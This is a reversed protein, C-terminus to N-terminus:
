LMQKLVPMTSLKAVYESLKKRRYTAIEDALTPEPDHPLHKIKIKVPDNKVVFNLRRLRM